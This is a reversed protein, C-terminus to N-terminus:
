GSGAARRIADGLTPKSNSKSASTKAPAEGDAAIKEALATAEDDHDNETLAAIIQEDTLEPM